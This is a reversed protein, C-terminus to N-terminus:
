DCIRASNGGKGCRLVARQYIDRSRDLVKESLDNEEEEDKSIRGRGEDIKEKISSYRPIPKIRESSSVKEVGEIM